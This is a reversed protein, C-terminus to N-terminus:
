CSEPNVASVGKQSSSRNNLENRAINLIHQQKEVTSHQQQESIGRQKMMQVELMSYAEIMDMSRRLGKQTPFILLEDLSEEIEEQKEEMTNDDLSDELMNSVAPPLHLIRNTHYQIEFKKFAGALLSKETAGSFPRKYIFLHGVIM